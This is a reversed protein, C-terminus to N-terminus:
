LREKLMELLQVKEFRVPNYKHDTISAINELDSPSAGYRSLRPIELRATLGDLYDAVFKLYWESKRNETGSFIKGLFIYKKMLNGKDGGALISQVTYRNVVAM